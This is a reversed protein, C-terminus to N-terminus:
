YRIIKKSNNKKFETDRLRTTWVRKYTPRSENIKATLAKFYEKNEIYEEEPFIEAVIRSKEEYVLVECVGEDQVYLLEIEEPSVNEGNSLIILNKIRGTLTIFGDDDIAGLDGTKYWGDAFAAETSAEDEYYGLMVHDGRILVEGEDSIRVQTNPLPLGITGDKHYYNRNVAAVPSCETTGYGNLIEVGWTRFEKILHPDLAAGGSIIFRLNGGFIRQIDKFFYSRMDIGSKLMSNSIQMAKKLKATKGAKEVGKWIQKRFSEIFIPVLPIMDPKAKEICKKVTKLSSNIYSTYGYHFVMLVGVVLGFAHHFPLVACSNGKLVYLRCSNEIDFAFNRHSLMVGKSVGSTGSTFMICALAGPDVTIDEYTKDLKSEDVGSMMAYMNDFNIIEENYGAQRLKKECVDATFALSVGARTFLNIIDEGSLETDVAVAINDTNLAALFAVIWEYSNKGSVGIKARSLGRSLIYNGLKRVDNYVDSYTKETVESYEEDGYAFAVGKPDMRYKIEILDRLDEIHEIDYLPYEKNKM